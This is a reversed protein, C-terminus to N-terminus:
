EVTLIKRPNTTNLFVLIYTVNIILLGVMPTVGHSQCLISVLINANTHCFLIVFDVDLTGYHDVLQGYTYVCSVQWYYAECYQNPIQLM